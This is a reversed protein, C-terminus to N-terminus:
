GYRVRGTKRRQRADTEGTYNNLTTASDAHGLQQQVHHVPAGTELLETALTRRLDHPKVHGVGALQATEDVVQWIATASMAKDVMFHGGRRVGVFVFQYDVPQALKWAKLATVAETGYLAAERAQDGKGHRVRIVGHDLDIDAWTLAVMESRRLGSLLAVSVIARNRKGRPTNVNKWVRILRDADAPSLARRERENARSEDTARVKLLKLSEFAAARAPNQYDVISLTKALTRLTSLERQKSTKTGDRDSLFVSVTAYNVDLLDVSNAACWEAWAEYTSRYIRASTAAVVGVANADDPAIMNVLVDFAPTAGVLDSAQHTTALANSDVM